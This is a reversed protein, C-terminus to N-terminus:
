NQTDDISGDAVDVERQFVLCCYIIWNDDVLLDKNVVDLDYKEALEVMSAPSFVRFTREESYYNNWHTFLTDHTGVKFMMYAHGEPKLVRAMEAVGVELEVASNLHQIMCSNVVVDLSSDEYPLKEGVGFRYQFVNRYIDKPLTAVVDADADCGDLLVNDLLRSNCGFPGAGLDVGILKGVNEEHRLYQNFWKIYDSFKTYNGLMIDCDGQYNNLKNTYSM